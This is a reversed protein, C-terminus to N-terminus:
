LGIASEKEVKNGSDLGKVNDRLFSPNHEGEKIIAECYELKGLDEFKFRYNPDRGFVSELEELLRRKVKPFHELFYVIHCITSSTTEIGGAFVEVMVEQIDDDTIPDCNIENGIGQTIDFKTNVTLLMTLLDARLESNENNNNYVGKEKEEATMHNEAGGLKSENECIGEIEKRRERIIRLLEEHLWEKNRLLEEVHGRVGPMRRIIWPTIMFYSLSEIFKRISDVFIESSRLVSQPIQKLLMTNPSLQKHYNALSYAKKHTTLVIISDTT